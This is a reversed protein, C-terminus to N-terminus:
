CDGLKLIILQVGGSSSSRSSAVIAHAFKRRRRPLELYKAGPALGARTLLGGHGEPDTGLCNAPVEGSQVLAAPAEIVGLSRESVMSVEDRGTTGGLARHM